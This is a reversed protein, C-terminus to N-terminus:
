PARPAEFSEDPSDVITLADAVGTLDFMRQVQDGGRVLVFRRGLEHMRQQAQLLVHLGTSDMFELERLDIIVLEADSEAVADAAHALTPSSLLDLDGSLVLTTARGTTHTHVALDSKV